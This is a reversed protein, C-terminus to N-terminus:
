LFRYRGEERAWLKLYGVETVDLLFSDCSPMFLRAFALPAIFFPVCWSYIMITQYFGQGLISAVAIFGITVGVEFIGVWMKRFGFMGFALGLLVTQGLLAIVSYWISYAHLGALLSLLGCPLLLDFVGIKRGKLPIQAIEETINVEKKLEYEDHLVPVILILTLSIGWLDSDIASIFEAASFFAYGAIVSLVAFYDWRKRKILGKFILVLFYICGGCYIAFRVFGGRTVLELWANHAHFFRQSKLMDSLVYNPLYNGFGIWNGRVNGKLLGLAEAFVSDRGTMPSGEAINDVMRTYYAKMWRLWPIDIPLFCLGMLVLMTAVMCICVISVVKREKWERIATYIAFLFGAILVGTSESKGFSFFICFLILVMPMFWWLAHTRSQGIICAFFGLMLIMAWYNRSSAIGHTYQKEAGQMAALYTGGETVFSHICLGVVILVFVALFINWARKGKGLHPLVALLFYLAVMNVFFAFGYRFKEVASFDFVYNDRQGSINEVSLAICNCVFLVTLLGILVYNVKAKFALHGVVIMVLGFLLAGIMFAYFVPAQNYPHTPNYKEKPMEYCFAVLVLYFASLISFGISSIKTRGGRNM